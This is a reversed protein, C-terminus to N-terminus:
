TGASVRQPSIDIQRQGQRICLDLNETEILLESNNGGLSIKVLSTWQVQDANGQSLIDSRYRPSPAQRRLTVWM